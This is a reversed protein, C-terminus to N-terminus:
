GTQLINWIARAKLLCEEYEQQAQADYTIASGAQFSLYKTQAHYFLSRIVVNFDFDSTPTIYGVAGSFLGRYAQEYVDILEMAKIKPAGTMSGMPFAHKIADTFPLDPRITASVSSIMQHLQPFTYIGFLEEVVVSGTVASRALDNRVLDVIMMNEALEKENHRLQFKIQEDEELSSGRRATGKIPQSLLQNCTKKLFREPSACLLYYDEIRGYVSFPMPSKTTLEQYLQWPHISVNEAFFEICYNLEYVDGELIHKKIQEVHALYTEATTRQKIQIAMKPSAPEKPLDQSLIQQYVKDPDALTEIRITEQDFHIIHLPIYFYAPPFQLYDPNRSQLDELENKLDYTFYGILWDQHVDHFQQMSAFTNGPTIPCIAAHGAALLTAFGGFPYTYANNDFLHMHSFQRAWAIAKQRFESFHHPTFVNTTRKAM